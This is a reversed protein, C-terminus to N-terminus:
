KESKETPLVKIVKSRGNYLATNIDIAMLRVTYDKPEGTTNFFVHVPEFETSTSGDGFDWQYTNAWLSKNIFQVTVPAPGENGTWQFDAYPTQDSDDDGCSAILLIALLLSARILRQINKMMKMKNYFGFGAYKDEFILM